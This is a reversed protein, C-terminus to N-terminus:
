LGQFVSAILVYKKFLYMTLNIYLYSCRKESAERYSGEPHIFDKEQPIKCNWNKFRLEELVFYITM